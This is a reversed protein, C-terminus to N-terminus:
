KTILNYEEIQSTIEHISTSSIKTLYHKKKTAQEDRFTFDLSLSEVNLNNLKQFIYERINGEILIYILKSQFYIPDNKM